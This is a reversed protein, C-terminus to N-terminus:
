SVAGGYFIWGAGAATCYLLKIVPVLYGVAAKYQDWLRDVRPPRSKRAAKMCYLSTYLIQSITYNIM